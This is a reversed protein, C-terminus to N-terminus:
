GGGGGGIGYRLIWKIDNEWAREFIGRESKLNGPQLRGVYLGLSWSKRHSLGQNVNCLIEVYTRTNPLVLIIFQYTHVCCRTATKQSVLLVLKYGVWYKWYPPKHGFFAMAFWFWNTSYSNCAFSIWCETQAKFGVTDQCRYTLPCYYTRICYSAVLTSLARGKTVVTFLFQRRLWGEVSQGQSTSTIRTM